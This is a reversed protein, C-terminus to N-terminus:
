LNGKTMRLSLSFSSLVRLPLSMVAPQDVPAGIGEDKTRSILVAAAGCCLLVFVLLGAAVALVESSEM